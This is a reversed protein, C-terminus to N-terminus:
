EACRLWGSYQVDWSVLEWGGGEGEIKWGSHGSMVRDPIWDWGRNLCFLEPYTHSSCFTV